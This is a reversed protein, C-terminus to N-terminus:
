PEEIYWPGSEYPLRHKNVLGYFFGKIDPMPGSGVETGVLISSPFGGVGNSSSVVTYGGSKIARRITEWDPYKKPFEVGNNLEFAQFIKRM